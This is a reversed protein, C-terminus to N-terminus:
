LAAAPMAHICQVFLAKIEDTEAIALARRGIVLAEGIAGQRILVRMLNRHVDVLDPKLALARRYQAAAEDLRGQAALVVGLNSCAEAFDPDRALTRRYHAAAQDLRGQQMLAVAINFDADAFRAEDSLRDPPASAPGAGQKRAARREKRNM